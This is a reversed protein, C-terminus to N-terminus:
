RKIENFNGSAHDIVSIPDQDGKGAQIANHKKLKNVMEKIRVIVQDSTCEVDHYDAITKM